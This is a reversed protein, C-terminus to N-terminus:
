VFQRVAGASGGRRPLIAFFLKFFPTKSAPFPARKDFIANFSGSPHRHTAPARIAASVHHMGVARFEATDARLTSPVAAIAQAQGRRQAAFLQMRQCILRAREIAKKGKLDKLADLAGKGHYLDRPLTFRAM